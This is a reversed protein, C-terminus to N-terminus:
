AAAPRKDDHMMSVTLWAGAAGLVFAVLDGPDFKGSTFFARTNELIPVKAFWSPVQEAIWPSLAPHQGCEFLVDTALWFATICLVGRRGPRLTACTLLVFAYVHLFDPMHKGLPGFVQVDAQFWSAAEPLFYVQGPDRDVVYVLVGLALALLGIVVQATAPSRKWWGTLPRHM